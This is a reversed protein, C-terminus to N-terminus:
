FWHEPHLAIQVDQGRAVHDTVFAEKTETWERRADSVYHDQWRSAYANEFAPDFDRWLVLRSPMHFSVLPDFTGPYAADLIGRQHDVVAMIDLPSNSEGRYDVHVGLRHGADLIVTLAEAGAASCPNYTPLRSAIYFTGSVGALHAFRAM